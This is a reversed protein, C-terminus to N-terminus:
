STTCSDVSMDSDRRYSEEFTIKLDHGCYVRDVPFLEVYYQGCSFEEKCLKSKSEFYFDITWIGKEYNLKYILVRDFNYIDRFKIYLRDSLLQELIAIIEENWGGNKFCKWM